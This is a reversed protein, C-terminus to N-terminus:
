RQNDLLFGKINVYFIVEDKCLVTVQPAGFSFRFPINASKQLWGSQFEALLLRQAETQAAASLEVAAEFQDELYDNMVSSPYKTLLKVIDELCWERIQAATTVIAHDVHPNLDDEGDGYHVLDLFVQSESLVQLYEHLYHTLANEVDTPRPLNQGYKLSIM